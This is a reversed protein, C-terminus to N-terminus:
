AVPRLWGFPGSARGSASGECGALAVLLVAAVAVFTLGVTVRRRGM